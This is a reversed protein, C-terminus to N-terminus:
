AGLRAPGSHIHWQSILAKVETHGRETAIELATFGQSDELASRGSDFGFMKHALVMRAVKADGWAAACHLATRGQADLTGVATFKPEGILLECMTRSRCQTAVHLATRGGNDRANVFAHSMSSILEAAISVQRQKVALHLSTAGAPDKHYITPLGEKLCFIRATSAMRMVTMTVGGDSSDAILEQVDPVLFPRHSDDEEELRGRFFLMQESVPIDWVEEINSKIEKVNARRSAMFSCTAVAREQTAPCSAPRRGCGGGSPSQSRVLWQDLRKVTVRVDFVEAEEEANGDRAEM